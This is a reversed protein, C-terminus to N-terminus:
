IEARESVAKLARTVEAAYPHTADVILEAGTDRLLAAMGDEDRRGSVVRVNDAPEILTEGYETAVSVTLEVNKGRCGEAIQRGETTGAFLLVKTM